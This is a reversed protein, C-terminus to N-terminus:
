LEGLLDDCPCTSHVVKSPFSFLLYVNSDAQSHLTRDEVLLLGAWGGRAISSSHFSLALPKKWFRCMLRPCPPGIRSRLLFSESIQYTDEDRERVQIFPAPTKHYDYTKPLRHEAVQKLISVFSAVLNKYPAADTVILEYLGCLAASMVSPDKDCLVQVCSLCVSPM